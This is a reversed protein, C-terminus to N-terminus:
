TVITRLRDGRTSNDMFLSAGGDNSGLIVVNQVAGGFHKKYRYSASAGSLNLGFIHGFGGNALEPGMNVPVVLGDTAGYNPADATNISVTCSALHQSYAHLDFGYVEAISADQVYVSGNWKWNHPTDAYCATYTGNSANARFGCAFPGNARRGWAHCHSYEVSGANALFGTRFGVAFSRTVYSDTCNGHRVGISGAPNVEHGPAPDYGDHWWAELRDVNIGTSPSASSGANVGYLQPRLTVTHDVDCQRGYTVEICSEALFGADVKGGTVRSHWAPQSGDGEKVLVVASGVFGPAAKIVAGDLRLTQGSGVVVPATVAYTRGPVCQVVNSEAFAEAFAVSDDTIGDAAAGRADPTMACLLDPFTVELSQPGDNPFQVGVSYRRM